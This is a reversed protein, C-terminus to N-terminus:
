KKHKAIEEEVVEVAQLLVDRFDVLDTKVDVDLTFNLDMNGKNLDWRRKNTVRQTLINKNAM